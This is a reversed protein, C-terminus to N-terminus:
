PTIPRHHWNCAWGVWWDLSHSQHGVEQIAWLEPDHQDLSGLRRNYVGTLDVPNHARQDNSAKEKSYHFLSRQLLKILNLKYIINLFDKKNSLWHALRLNEPKVLAPKLGRRDTISPGSSWSQKREEGASAPHIVWGAGLTLLRRHKIIMVPIFRMNHNLIARSNM